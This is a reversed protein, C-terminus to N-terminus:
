PMAYGGNVSLTQGTIWEARDSALFAVAHALDSPKGLRKHFQMLPYLRRLSQIMQQKEEETRGGIAETETMSPSVCNVNVGFRGVEKALSRSFSIVGGKAMGYVVMRPEGVRGADTITSIIKGYNRECMEPLVAAVCNLVGYTIVNMTHDWFPRDSGLFYPDGGTGEEMEAIQEPYRAPLGANNVLIDIPGFEKRAREVMADVSKREVVDAQIGIATGGADRLEKATEQARDEYYDNVVVKAGEECLTKAMGKGIGRGSGTIIAVKGKLFLDM